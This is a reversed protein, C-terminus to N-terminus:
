HCCRRCARLSGLSTTDTIFYLHPGWSFHEQDRKFPCGQAYSSLIRLYQLMINSPDV